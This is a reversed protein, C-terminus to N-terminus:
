GILETAKEGSPEVITEPAYSLERLSQPAPTGWREEAQGEGAGVERGRSVM